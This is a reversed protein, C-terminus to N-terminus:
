IAVQCENSDFRTLYLLMYPLLSFMKKDYFISHNLQHNMEWTLKQIFTIERYRFFGLICISVQLDSKLHLSHWTGEQERKKKKQYTKSSVNCQLSCLLTAASNEGQM